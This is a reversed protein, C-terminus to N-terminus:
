GRTYETLPRGAAPASAQRRRRSRRWEERRRAAEPVWGLLDLRGLTYLKLAAAQRHVCFPDGGLRSAPCPCEAGGPTVRVLYVQQEAPLRGVRAEVTRAEGGRLLAELDLHSVTKERPVVGLRQSPVAVVAEGRSLKVVVSKKALRAARLADGAPVGQRQLWRVAEWLGRAM